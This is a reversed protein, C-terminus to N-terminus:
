TNTSEGESQRIEDRRLVECTDVGGILSEIWERGEVLRRTAAFRADGAVSGCCPHCCLLGGSGSLDGAQTGLSHVGTAEYSLIHGTSHLYAVRPSLTRPACIGAHM